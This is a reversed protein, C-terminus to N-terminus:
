LCVSFYKYHFKVQFLATNMVEFGYTWPVDWKTLQQEQEQPKKQTKHQNKM